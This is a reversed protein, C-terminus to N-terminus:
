HNTRVIALLNVGLQWSTNETATVLCSGSGGCGLWQNNTEKQEIPVSLVVMMMIWWVVTLTSGSGMVAMWPPPCLGLLLGGAGMMSRPPMVCVGRIPPRRDGTVRDAVLRGRSTACLAVPPAVVCVRVVSGGGGSKKMELVRLVSPVSEPPEVPGRLGWEGRVALRVTSPSLDSRRDRPSQGGHEKMWYIPRNTAPCRHRKHYKPNHKVYILKNKENLM